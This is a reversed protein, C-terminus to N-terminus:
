RFLTILFEYQGFIRVIVCHFLFNYFIMGHRIKFKSLRFSVEESKTMVREDTVIAVSVYYKTQPDLNYIVEMTQKIPIISSKKNFRVPPNSHM